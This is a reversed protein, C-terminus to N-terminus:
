WFELLACASSGRFGQAEPHSQQKYQWDWPKWGTLGGDVYCHGADRKRFGAKVLSKFSVYAHPWVKTLWRLYEAPHSMQAHSNSGAKAPECEMFVELLAHQQM